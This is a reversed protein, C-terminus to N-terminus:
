GPVIATPNILPCTILPRLMITLPVHLRQPCTCRSSATVVAYPTIGLGVGLSVHWSMAPLKFLSFEQTLPQMELRVGRGSGADWRELSAYSSLSEATM